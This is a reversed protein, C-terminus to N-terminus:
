KAITEALRLTRKRVSSTAYNRVAHIRVDIALEQFSRTLLEHVHGFYVVEGLNEIGLFGPILFIHQTRHSM